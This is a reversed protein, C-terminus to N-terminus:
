CVARTWSTGDRHRSRVFSPAIDPGLQESAMRRVMESALNDFNTM